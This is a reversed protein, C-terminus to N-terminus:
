EGEETGEAEGITGNTALMLVPGFTQGADISARFMIEENNNSTVNTWWALYVNDGSIVIPAKRFEGMDVLAEASWVSLVTPGAAITTALLLVIVIIRSNM